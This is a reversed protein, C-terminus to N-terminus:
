DRLVRLVEEVTTQGRLIKVRGADRLSPTTLRAHRELEQESKGEQIMGRLTDEIVILEHIGSSGRYGGPADGRPRYLVPAADESALGLFHREAEQAAYPERTNPDLVRVVRLALVGHLTLSLLAPDVGLHTLRTIAGMATNTNLGALVLQSRSVDLALQAIAGDKIEDLMVVDPDQDLVAKLAQIFSMHPSVQTQSIGDIRRQILDEVTMINLSRDDLHELATYLTTTRGSGLPGTVILLGRRHEKLLAELAQATAPEMGLSAFDRPGAKLHLVAREGHAGPLTSVRVDLASGLLKLTIHTEQPREREAADLGSIVKIRSILRSAVAHAHQQVERLAGQMRFRIALRSALPEIHIDSAQAKVALTLVTTFLEMVDAEHLPDIRAKSLARAKGREHPDDPDEAGEGPSKALGHSIYNVVDIRTVHQRSMLFVAHSQKESFLGVLVNAVGVEKKGSSQVHFVARQLVRQFGLTPQVDREEDKELRPTSEYVHDRLEQELKTLDAGCALLIERVKPADLIALLLHEVTLFEHRAERAQHFANNLCSELESSLV